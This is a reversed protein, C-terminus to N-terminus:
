HRRNRGRKNTAASEGVNSTHVAHGAGRDGVRRLVRSVLVALGHTCDQPSIMYHREKVYLQVIIRSARGAVLTIRLGWVSFLAGITFCSSWYQARREM